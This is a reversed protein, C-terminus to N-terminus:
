IVNIGFAAALEGIEGIHKGINGRGFIAITKGYIDRLPASFHCYVSLQQWAGNQVDQMYAPLNRHLALLMMIAHEAVSITSYGRVNCVSINAKRAAEVDINNYGTATVAILKLQPNAVFHEEKLM